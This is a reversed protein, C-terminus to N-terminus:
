QDAGFVITDFAVDAGTGGLFGDGVAGGIVPIAGFGPAGFAFGGGGGGLAIGAAPISFPSSKIAAKSGKKFTKKGGKKAKKGTKKVGKKFPKNFPPVKTKKFTKKGGKKGKKGLKKISIFSKKSFKKTFKEPSRKALDRAGEADILPLFEDSCKLCDGRVTITKAGVQDRDSISTLGNIREVPKAIATAVM